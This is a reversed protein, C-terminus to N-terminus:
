GVWGPPPAAFGAEAPFAEPRERGESKKVLPVGWALLTKRTAYRLTVVEAPAETAREFSTHQTYYAEAKGYATGLSEEKASSSRRKGLTAGRTAGLTATSKFAATSVEFPSATSDSTSCIVEPLSWPELEWSYRPWRPHRQVFVEPIPVFVPKPKEDFVAVGIVGVNKTGRGTQSAYSADEKAFAFRACESGSRLFGKVTVSKWADVVFGSGSYGADKGEIVNVGDVSVVCLRRAPSNNTLRLEYEGSSPAVLYSEGEHSVQQLVRGGSVVEVRVM